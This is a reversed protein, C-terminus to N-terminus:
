FMHSHDFKIGYEGSRSRFDAAAIVPVKPAFQGFCNLMGRTGFDSSASSWVAGLVATVPLL